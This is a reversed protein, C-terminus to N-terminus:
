FNQKSNFRFKRSFGYCEYFYYVYVPGSCSIATANIMEENEIFLSKGTTNILNKSHYIFGKRDAQSATFSDNKDSKGRFIQCPVFSKQSTIKRFIKLQFEQMVKIFILHSETIFDKIQLSEFDQPKHYNSNDVSL